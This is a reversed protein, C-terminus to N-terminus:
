GSTITGTERMYAPKQLRPDFRLAPNASQPELSNQRKKNKENVRNPQLLVYEDPFKRQARQLTEKLKSATTNACTRLRLPLKWPYYARYSPTYVPVRTTKTPTGFWVSTNPISNTGFGVPTNPLTHLDYRVVETPYQPQVSGSNPLPM